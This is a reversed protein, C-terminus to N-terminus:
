APQAYYQSSDPSVYYSLSDPTLYNDTLAGGSSHGPALLSVSLGIFM